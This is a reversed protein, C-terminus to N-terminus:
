SRAGGGDVVAVAEIEILLEPLILGKVEVLTSAPYPESIYERRIPAVLRYDAADLVYNTIKVVDAFTAGAAELCLRMNEMCQRTQVAIDGEGVVNGEADFSVCGSVFVLTGGTARVTNAYPGVPAAVGAPNLSERM